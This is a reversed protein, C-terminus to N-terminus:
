EVPVLVLPTPLCSAGPPSYRLRLTAQEGAPPAPFVQILVAEPLSKTTLQDTPILVVGAPFAGEDVAVAAAMNDCWEDGNRFNYTFLALRRGDTSRYPIEIDYLVGYNGKLVAPEDITSETGVVWPDGKGDAVVVQAAGHLTDFVYGPATRVAFNSQLFLGRGAGSKSKTPIVEQLRRAATASPTALDTQVVSIRAPQDITFDYFGHVLEDYLVVANEMAEDIPMAGGVPISKSGGGSSRLWDALGNKGVAHYNTSPAQFSYRTFTLTLPEDGLNEIVASIRREMKEPDKVGNVNYVYLRVPGPKVDERMAVGEPIRIYEPDDSILFQPSGALLVREFPINPVGKFRAALDPPLTVVSGPQAAAVADGLPTAPAQGPATACLAIAILIVRQFLM